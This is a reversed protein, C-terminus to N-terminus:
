YLALSLLPLQRGAPLSDVLGARIAGKRLYFAEANPDSVIRLQESVRFDM